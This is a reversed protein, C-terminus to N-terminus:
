LIRDVDTGSLSGLNLDAEKEKSNEKITFSITASNGPELVDGLASLLNRLHRRKEQPMM